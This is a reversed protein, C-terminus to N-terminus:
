PAHAIALSNDRFRPVLFLPYGIWSMVQFGPTTPSHHWQCYRVRCDKFGAKKFQWERHDRSYEIVHGLVSDEMHFYDHIRSGLAIYVLNRLRYFNPTSCIVIGNPKLARRLKELVIHGPLPLHEIVESFFIIDFRAVLPQEPKCLNWQVTEVGQTELYAFHSLGLDAVCARDNWLKKCLLALQGGGIDLVDMPVPLALDCFQKILAKYRRRYRFCYDSVLSSGFHPCIFELYVSDFKKADWARAM